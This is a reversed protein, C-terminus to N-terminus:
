TAFAFRPTPMRSSEKGYVIQISSSPCPGGVHEVIGLRVIVESCSGIRGTSVGTHLRLQRRIGSRVTKLAHCVCQM